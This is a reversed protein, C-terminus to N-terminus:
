GRGRKRTASGRAPRLEIARVDAFIYGYPLYRAKLAVRSEGKPLTMEGVQRLRFDDFSATAKVEGHAQEDDAEITFQSGAYPAPCALRVGVRYRRRAPSEVRWTAYQELAGWGCICPAGGDRPSRLALRGGKVGYGHLQADAAQL